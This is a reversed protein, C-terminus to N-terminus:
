PAWARWAKWSEVAEAIAAYGGANPHAGDGAEVEAIWSPCARIVPRLPLFPIALSACLKALELTLAEIGIDAVPDSVPVPGLMLVPHSQRATTLIARANELSRSLPVRPGGNEIVCDNAGFAFILRGEHQPPLRRTAEEQWRAFIDSSTDRRIGLNYLTVDHGRRRASACVRGAWGMMTDDGTGNAFSDGFLCLRFCSM